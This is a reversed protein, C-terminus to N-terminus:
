SQDQKTSTTRLWQRSGVNFWYRNDNANNYAKEWKRGIKRAVTAKLATCM